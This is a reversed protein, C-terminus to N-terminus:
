ADTPEDIDKLLDVTICDAGVYEHPVLELYFMCTASKFLVLMANNNNKQIKTEIILHLNFGLPQM